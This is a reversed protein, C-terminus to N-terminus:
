TELRSFYVALAQCCLRKDDRSQLPPDLRETHPPCYRVPAWSIVLPGDVFIDEFNFFEDSKPWKIKSLAIKCAIKVTKKKPGTGLPQVPPDLRM